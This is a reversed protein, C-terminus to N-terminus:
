PFLRRSYSISFLLLILPCRMSICYSCRRTLRAKDGNLTFAYPLFPFNRHSSLRAVKMRRWEIWLGRGRRRLHKAWTIAPVFSGTGIHVNSNWIFLNAWFANFQLDDEHSNANSDLILSYLFLSVSFVLLPNEHRLLAYLIPKRTEPELLNPRRCLCWVLPTPSFFGAFELNNCRSDVAFIICIGALFQSFLFSEWFEERGMYKNIPRTYVIEASTGHQWQARRENIKCCDAEPRDNFRFKLKPALGRGNRKWFRSVFSFLSVQSDLKLAMKPKPKPSTHVKSALQLQDCLLQQSSGKM